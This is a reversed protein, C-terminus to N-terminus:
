HILLERVTIDQKGNVGFEPIYRMLPDNLRVQGLEVLRMVCTTTAVVKTLSAIDFITDVTMLERRPEISRWGFAKRYIVHGNHGVLIVAGPVQHTNIAQQIIADVQPLSVPEKQKTGKGTEAGCLTIACVFAV